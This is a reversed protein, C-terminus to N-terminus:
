LDIVKADEPRSFIDISNFFFPATMSQHGTYIFTCIWRSWTLLNSAYISSPFVLRSLQISKNEIMLVVVVTPALPLFPATDHGFTFPQDSAIAGESVGALRDM